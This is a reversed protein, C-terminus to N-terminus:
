PMKHKHPDSCWRQSHVGGPGCNLVHIYMMTTKVDNHLWRSGGRHREPSSRGLSGKVARMSRYTHERWAQENERWPHPSISRGSRADLSPLGRGRTARAYFIMLSWGRQDRWARESEECSPPRNLRGSRADEWNGIKNELTAQDIRLQARRVLVNRDHANRSCSSSWAARGLRRLGRTARACSALLGGGVRRM